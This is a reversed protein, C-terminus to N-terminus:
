IQCDYYRCYSELASLVALHQTVSFQDAPVVDYFLLEPGSSWFQLMMMMMM